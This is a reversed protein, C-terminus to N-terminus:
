KKSQTPLSNFDVVKPAPQQGQPTSVAAPAPQLGVTSSQVQGAFYPEVNQQKRRSEVRTATKIKAREIADDYRKLAELTAETDNRGYAAILAQAFRLVDKDTQVGKEASVQLNVATDVASKLAEYARSEPTSNGALNQAMYKANKLPGLELKRVGASDPTLNLISPRLAEQQSTYSDITQLDKDEEKQLSAALPKTGQAAARSVIATRRDISAQIVRAQQDPSGFKRFVALYQEETANAPLAALAERLKDEREVTQQSRAIDTETKQIDKSTKQLGLIDKERQDAIAAAALSFEGYGKAGLARSYQRIGEPNTLDFQTRMQAVDRLKVLEPDEVGLMGAIAGVGRGIMQGQQAAQTYLPGLSPNMMTGPAAAGRGVAIADLYDQRQRKSLYEEPSTGFLSNVIEAM